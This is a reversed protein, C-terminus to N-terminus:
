YKGPNKLYDFGDIPKSDKDVITYKGRTSKAVEAFQAAGSKTQM